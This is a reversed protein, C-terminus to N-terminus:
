TGLHVKGRLRENKENPHSARAPPLVPWPYQRNQGLQSLKTKKPRIPRNIKKKGVSATQWLRSHGSSIYCNMIEPVAHGQDITVRHWHPFVAMGDVRVFAEDGDLLSSDPPRKADISPVVHTQSKSSSIRRRLKEVTCWKGVRSLFPICRIAEM